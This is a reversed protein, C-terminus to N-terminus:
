IKSFIVDCFVNNEYEWDNLKDQRIILQKMGRVADPSVKTGNRKIFPKIFDLTAEMIDINEPIIIDVFGSELAGNDATLKHGSAMWKLATKRGVSAYLRALGGWPSSVGMSTQVFQVFGNTSMCVFDFATILESGGGIAGGTLIAVTILPLKTLKYISAHMLKNVTITDKPSKLHERAFSLDLGSCFSKGSAGMVIVAVLKDVNKELECVSNYWEVMMKGSLANHRASNDIVIRAISPRFDLELKITGDGKDSLFRTIDEM